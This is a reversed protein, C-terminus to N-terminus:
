QTRRDWIGFDDQWMAGQEKGKRRSKPSTLVLGSGFTFSAKPFTQQLSIAGVIEREQITQITYGLWIVVREQDPPACSPRM